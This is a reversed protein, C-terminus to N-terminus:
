QVMGQHRALSIVLPIVPYISQISGPQLNGRITLLKVLCQDLLSINAKASSPIPTM